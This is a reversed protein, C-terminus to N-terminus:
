ENSNGTIFHALKWTLADLIPLFLGIGIGIFILLTESM